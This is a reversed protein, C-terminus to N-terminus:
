RGLEALKSMHWALAQNSSLAPRGLRAGVEGIADYTRLNTCSMFVGEIGKDAGVKCAAEVVSRHSIRVVREEVAEDLTLTQLYTRSERQWGVYSIMLGKELLYNAWLEMHERFNPIYTSRMWKLFGSVMAARPMSAMSTPFAKIHSRQLAQDFLAVYTDIREGIVNVEQDSAGQWPFANAGNKRLDDSKGNWINRRDDYSRLCADFYYNLDILCTDYAESLAGVDPEKDVYILAEGEQYETLDETEM